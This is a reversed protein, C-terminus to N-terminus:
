AAIVLLVEAPSEGTSTIKHPVTSNFHACDGAQLAETRNALQLQIAGKLVYLIEEGEHHSMPHGRGREKGPQLVFALMRHGPSTGAVVRPEGQAPAPARADAVRTITVPDSESPEGFLEEVPVKLAKALKLAAGISPTSAGREVKSVYSRTLDSAQALAELTLGAQVRLLKLKISM